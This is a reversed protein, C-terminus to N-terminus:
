KKTAVLQSATYFTYINTEREVALYPEWRGHINKRFYVFVTRRYLHCGSIQCCHILLPGQTERTLRSKSHM